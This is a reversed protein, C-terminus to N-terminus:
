RLQDAIRGAVRQKDREIAATLVERIPKMRGATDETFWIEGIQVDTTIDQRHKAWRATRSADLYDLIETDTM